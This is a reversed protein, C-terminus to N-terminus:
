WAVGYDDGHTSAGGQFTGRAPDVRIATLPGSTRTDTDIRYGMGELERRVWPPVDEHVTLRGPKSEHDGFSSRMQHSTFHPAECAEQVNMGFEVTNLFFQVLNQEQTDGGQVSFAMFPKGDKLAITPTLTARPRKGPALVNYPGDEGRLVFSQLRQSMGVGTRGAVCAPPWGGSPTVSVLWGEADAAQISTTGARFDREYRAEERPARRSPDWPTRSWRDLWESFPHPEGRFGYPDGPSAFPDNQNPRLFLLRHRAYDKSLLTELPEEPPAYPDGYYFDRDAFCLNMVQYITHIYRASNLGMAALDLPELMNLMQIM